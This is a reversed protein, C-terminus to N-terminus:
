WQSVLSYRKGDSRKGNMRKTTSIAATEIEGAFIKGTIKRRPIIAQAEEAVVGRLHRAAQLEDETEKAVTGVDSMYWATQKKLRWEIGKRKGGGGRGRETSKDGCNEKGRAIMMMSLERRRSKKWLVGEPGPRPMMRM